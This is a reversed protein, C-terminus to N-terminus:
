PACDGPTGSGPAPGLLPPGSWLDIRGCSLDVRAADGSTTTADRHIDGAHVTLQLLVRGYSSSVQANWPLTPLRTADLHDTRGAAVTEIVIGNVMLSVNLTSGNSVDLSMDAAAISDSGCAIAVLMATSALVM